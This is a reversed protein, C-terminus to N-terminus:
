HIYQKIFKGVVAVDMSHIELIIQQRGYEAASFFIMLLYLANVIELATSQCIITALAKTWKM